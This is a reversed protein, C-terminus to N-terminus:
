AGINFLEGILCGHSNGSLFGERKTMKGPFIKESGGVGEGGGERREM